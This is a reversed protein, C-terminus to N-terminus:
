GLPCIMVHGDFVAGVILAGDYAAGVSSANIEGDISVFVDENEGTAPDIRVVHSPAIADPDEAHAVFEFAKSHGGIWLMGDPDVDINDPGTNVKMVGTKEIAGTSADRDFVSIRRKLFEAVYLTAGDPSLNVGNAYALGKAAFDGRAGDFYVVSTLPLALYIEMASMLGDEYRRDNTAYFSRPGAAVVDNPSYMADFSISDTHTLLGDEGVDFMEVIEEGTSPHSVVFLRRVGDAGRWLDLGHPLFDDLGEPSVLRLTSPDDLDFAYVGGKIKNDSDAGGENFWARRDAASIYAIRREHDIVVDEAGPAVDLRECRDVLKPELTQFTGAVPAIITLFWTAVLAAAAIFIVVAIRM